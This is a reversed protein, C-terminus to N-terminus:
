LIEGVTLGQAGIKRRCVALLESALCADSVPLDIHYERSRGTLAKRQDALTESVVRTVQEQVVEGAQDDLERGSIKDYLVNCTNQEAVCFANQLLEDSSEFFLAITHNLWNLHEVGSFKADGLPPPPNENQTM